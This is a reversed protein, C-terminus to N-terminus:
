KRPRPMKPAPPPPHLPTPPPLLSCLPPPFSLSFSSTFLLLFSSIPFAYLVSYYYSSPFLQRLICRDKEKRIQAKM